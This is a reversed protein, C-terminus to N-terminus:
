RIAARTLRLAFEEPICERAAQRPSLALLAKTRRQLTRVTGFGHREAVAQLSVKRDGFDAYGYGFRAIDLLDHPPALGALQYAARVAATSQSCLEALANVDSPVPLAGFLALTNRRLPELLRGVHPTLGALVRASVSEDDSRLRAAIRAADDDTGRFILEPILRKQAAILRAHDFSQLWSYLALRVGTDAVVDIAAKFALSSLAMPDLVVWFVEGSRLVADLSEVSAVVTVRATGLLTRLADFSTGRALAVVRGAGSRQPM